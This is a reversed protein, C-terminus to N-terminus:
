AVPSGSEFPLVVPQLELASRPCVEVCLGCASCQRVEVRAAGGECLLAGHPCYKACLGCGDCDSGVAITALSLAASLRVQRRGSAAVLDGIDDLLEAHGAPPASQRHLDEVKPKPPATVVTAARHARLGFFGFLERRSLTTETVPKQPARTEGGAPDGRAFSVELGSDVLGLVDLAADVAGEVARGATGNVCLACDGTAVTIESLGAARAAIIDGAALAGVCPLVIAETARSAPM